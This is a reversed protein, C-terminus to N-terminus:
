LDTRSPIKLSTGGLVNQCKIALQKITFILSIETETFIFNWYTNDITIM